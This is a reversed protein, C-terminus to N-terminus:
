ALGSMLREGKLHDINKLDNDWKLIKTRFNNLITEDEAQTYLYVFHPYSYIINDHPFLKFVKMYSEKIIKQWYDFLVEKSIYNNAVIVGIYEMTNCFKILMKYENWYTDKHKEIWKMDITENTYTDKLHNFDSDFRDLIYTKAETFKENNLIKQFVDLFVNLTSAKLRNQEQYLLASLTGAFALGTFLSGIAGFLFNGLLIEDVLKDSVGYFFIIVSIVLLVVWIFIPILFYQKM